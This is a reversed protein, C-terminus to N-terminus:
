EHMKKNGNWAFLQICMARLYVFIGQAMAFALSLGAYLWFNSQQDPKEAWDGVIYDAGMKALIFMVMCSISILFFITGGFFRFFYQYYSSFTVVVKEDQENSTIKGKNKKDGPADQGLPKSDIYVDKKPKTSIESKKM